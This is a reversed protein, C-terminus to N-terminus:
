INPSILSAYVILLYQVYTKSEFILLGELPKRVPTYSIKAAMEICGSGIERM